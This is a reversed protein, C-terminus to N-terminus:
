RQGCPHRHRAAASRDAGRGRSSVGCSPSGPGCRRPPRPRRWSGTCAPWIPPRSSSSRPPCDAGPARSAFRSGPRRAPWSSCPAGPPDRGPGSPSRSSPTACETGRWPSAAPPTSARRSSSGTGPPRSRSRRRPSTPRVRIGDVEASFSSPAEAAPAPAGLLAAIAAALGPADSHALLDRPDILLRQIGDISLAVPGGTTTSTGPETVGLAVLLDVLQRVLGTAPLPGLASALRGVILRAEPLLPAGEAVDTYSIVWRPRQLGLAVAEHLILRAAAPEGRELPLEVEITARRLSPHRLVDAPRAPDPGGALWGGARDIEIRARLGRQRARALGSAAVSATLEARVRVAGPGAAPAVRLMLGAALDGAGVGLGDDRREYSSEYEAELLRLLLGTVARSASAAAVNGRVCHVAVTAPVTPLVPPPALEAAPSRPSDYAARLPELLGRGLVVVPHEPRDDSAPPVLAALLQLAGAAPQAELVELGAGGHPTGLTVLHTVGPHEAAVRLAAHGAAGHAVLAVPGGAGARAAVADVARRLRAALREDADEGPAAIADARAPLRALWPGDEAEAIAVDFAEPALGPASLDLVHDDDVGPWTSVGFPGTVFVTSPPPPVGLVAGLDLRSPLQGHAVDGLDHVTAGPLTAASAAVLGDGGALRAALADLGAGLDERGDLADALAPSDFAARALLAALREGDPQPIAPDTGEFWAM